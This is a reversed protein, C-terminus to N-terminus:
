QVNWRLLRVFVYRFYKKSFRTLRRITFREVVGLRFRELTEELDGSQTVVSLVQGLVFITGKDVELSLHHVRVEVNQLLRRRAIGRLLTQELQHLGEVVSQLRTGRVRLQELDLEVGGVLPLEGDM